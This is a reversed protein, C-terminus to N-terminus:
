TLYMFERSKSEDKPPSMFLEHKEFDYLKNDALHSPVVSTISNFINQIRGPYDREWKSLMNKIIQRQLNNQSGCLSCPIIPFKMVKSYAALDRESCYSLPRIIISKKDDSKLTPPMAKIKSGFFMNLFLTEVIDDRHHGLAIKTAGLIKGFKYIVGRRLRSCLSCMTKGTSVKSKVVSYTDQEVIHYDIDRTKLYNEIKQEPYNPQKQNLHFAILDFNVPAKKRIKILLDLLSYSDKGGSVCVMIKDGRAIMGYDYIAEGINKRLRKELKGFSFDHKGDSGTKTEGYM